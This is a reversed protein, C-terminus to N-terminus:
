DYLKALEARKEFLPELVSFMPDDFLLLVHSLELPAGRRIALRAPIRELITGETARVPRKNGPRYDYCELDLAAVLGLRTGEGTMREALVFGNQVRPALTGNDLYAQMAQQINPIRWAAEHLYIEPLVLRLASPQSGVLMEAEQWYAPQSTYQDCAVSAWASLDVTQAPLYFDGPKICPDHM